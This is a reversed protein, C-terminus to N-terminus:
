IFKKPICALKMQGVFINDKYQILGKDPNNKCIHVALNNLGTQLPYSLVYAIAVGAGIACYSRMLENM